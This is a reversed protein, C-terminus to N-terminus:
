AAVHITIHQVTYQDHYPVTRTEVQRYSQNTLFNSTV